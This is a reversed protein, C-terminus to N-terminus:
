TSVIGKWDVWFNGFVGTLLKEISSLELVAHGIQGFKKETILPEITLVSRRTARLAMNPMIAMPQM